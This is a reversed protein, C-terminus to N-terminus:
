RGLRVGYVVSLSEVGPNLDYIVANSLHSFTLGLRSRDSLRYSVELGSRFEVPGGLDKGDGASYIGVGTYPTLRWRPSPEWPVGFGAYGYYSGDDNAMAGIAPEIELRLRGLALPLRTFRLEVAAETAQRRDLVGYRGVGLVLESPEYAAAPAAALLAAGLAVAAAIPVRSPTM